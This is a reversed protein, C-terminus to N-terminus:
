SSRKYFDDSDSLRESPWSGRDSWEDFDIWKSFPNPEEQANSAKEKSALTRRTEMIRDEPSGRM